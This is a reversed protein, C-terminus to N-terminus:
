TFTTMRYIIKFLILPLNLGYYYKNKLIWVPVEIGDYPSSPGWM